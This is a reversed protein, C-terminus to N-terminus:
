QEVEQIFFGKINSVARVMLDNLRVFKQENTCSERRTCHEYSREGSRDNAIVLM